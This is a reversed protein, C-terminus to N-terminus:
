QNEFQGMRPWHSGRLTSIIRTINPLKREPTVLHELLTKYMEQELESIVQQKLASQEKKHSITNRSSVRLVFTIQSLQKSM